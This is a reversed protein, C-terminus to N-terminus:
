KYTLITTQTYIVFQKNCARVADSRYAAIRWITCPHTTSVLIMYNTWQQIPTHYILMYYDGLPPILRHTRRDTEIVTIHLVFTTNDIAQTDQCDRNGKMTYMSEMNIM